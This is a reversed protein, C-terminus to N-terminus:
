FVMGTRLLEVVCAYLVMVLVAALMALQYFTFKRDLAAKKRELLAWELDKVQDALDQLLEVAQGSDLAQLLTICLADVHPNDFRSQFRALAEEMKGKMVLDGSLDMLAERLRRHEVCGYIEMLSDLVYVGAKMQISLTHYVMKIDPLMEENDKKNGWEVMCGPLALLILALLVGVGMGWPSGLVLGAAAMALHLLVYGHAHLWAGFHYAAGKKRLYAGIAGAESLRSRRELGQGLRGLFFDGAGEGGREAGLWAAVALGCLGAAAVGAWFRM